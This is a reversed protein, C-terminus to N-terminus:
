TPWFDILTGAKQLELRDLFLDRPIEHAGLVALHPTIVQIDMWTLGMSRLHDILFLLALKSANPEQHFMSEGSFVGGVYVGYLGGVLAGSDNWAEVSHAYRASHLAIYAHLMSPTIWTGDQAPRSAQRCAAIVQEFANDITFTLSTRRRLRALRKPVHLADFDLVARQPPCFWLLPYGPVPWPFIGQGYARLLTQVTLDGGVGVVEATGALRPSIFNPM